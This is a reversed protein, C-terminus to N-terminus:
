ASAVGDAGPAFRWETVRVHPESIHAVPTAKPRPPM